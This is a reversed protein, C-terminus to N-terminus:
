KSAVQWIIHHYSVVEGGTIQRTKRLEIEGDVLIHGRTIIEGVHGGTEAINLLKIFQNIRIPTRVYVATIEPNETSSNKQTPSNSSFDM